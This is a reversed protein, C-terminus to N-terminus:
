AGFMDAADVGAADVAVWLPMEVDDEAEGLFVAAGDIDVQVFGAFHAGERHVQDDFAGAGKAHMSLHGDTVGEAQAMGVAVEDVGQDVRQGFEVDGDHGGAGGGAARGAGGTRRRTSRPMRTQAPESPM